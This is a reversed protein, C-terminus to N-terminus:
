SSIFPNHPWHGIISGPKIRIGYWQSVNLDSTDDDHPDIQELEFNPCIINKPDIIQNDIEFDYNYKQEIFNM